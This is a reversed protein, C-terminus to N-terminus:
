LSLPMVRVLQVQYITYQWQPLVFVYFFQLVFFQKNHHQKKHLARTAIM